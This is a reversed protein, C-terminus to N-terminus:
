QPGPWRARGFEEASLQLAEDIVVMDYESLLALAEPLPRHFLFAGACTDVVLGLHRQRMRCALQGTPLAYLVRLGQDQAWRILYDALDERDGARGPM